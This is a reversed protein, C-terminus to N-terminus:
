TRSVTFDQLMKKCSGMLGPVLSLQWTRHAFQALLCVLLWMCRVCVLLVQWWALCM